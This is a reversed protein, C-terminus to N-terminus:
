QNIKQGSSRDMSTLPTNFDGIITNWDIEGKIDALIQQIYRSAGKNPAYIDIITIAQEQISWKVMLYHGKKDKKIAKTNIDIKDSILIAVGAKREQGNAHYTKEWGRM